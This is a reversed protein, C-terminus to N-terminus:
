CFCKITLIWFSRQLACLFSPYSVRFIEAFIWFKYQVYQRYLNNRSRDECIFADSFMIFVHKFQLHMKIICIKSGKIFEFWLPYVRTPTCCFRLKEFFNRCKKLFSNNDHIYTSYRTTIQFCNLLANQIHTERRILFDFSTVLIVRFNRNRDKRFKVYKDM